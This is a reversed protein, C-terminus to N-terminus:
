SLKKNEKQFTAILLLHPGFPWKGCGVPNRDLFNSSEWEFTEQWQLQSEQAIEFLHHRGQGPHHPCPMCISSSDVCYSRNGNASCIAINETSISTKSVSAKEENECGLSHTGRELRTKSVLLCAWLLLGTAQRPNYTTTPEISTSALNFTRFAERIWQSTLFCVLSGRGLIDWEPFLRPPGVLFTPAPVHAYLCDRHPKLVHDQVFSPLGSACGAWSLWSQSM